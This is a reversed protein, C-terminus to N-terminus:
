SLAGGLSFLSADTCVMFNRFHDLIILIPASTLREKLIVFANECKETWKCVQNKKQLSIIPNAIKSFDKVFCCYYGALRMFSRVESVNTPTPWSMIAEIKKPDIIVGEASIIHGLYQVQPVYFDCKSLKGYLQHKRLVDLVIRLHHDHDSKNKSYILIDDLFVLVFKDLFEHFISNMLNMFAAPANTLGFPLVVFEYHGYRIKFAIKHTNSSKIRM